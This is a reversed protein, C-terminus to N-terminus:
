KPLADLDVTCTMIQQDHDKIWAQVAPLSVNKFPNYGDSYQPAIGASRLWSYFYSNFNAIDPPFHFGYRKVCAATGALSSAVESAVPGEVHNAPNLSPWIVLQNPKATGLLARDYIRRAREPAFGYATVVESGGEVFAALQRRHGEHVCYEVGAKTTCTRPADAQYVSVAPQRLSPGLAFLMVVPVAVLAALPPKRSTSRLLALSIQAAALTVIALFILRYILLPRSAQEGLTLVRTPVPSLASTGTTGVITLGLLLVFSLSGMLATRSWVGTLYGLVTATALGVLGTLSVLVDPGGYQAKGATLVLLPVFALVYGILHSSLLLGLHRNLISSVPRASSRQAFIRSAPTVRGAYYTAAAAAIPGTIALQWMFESSTRTWEQYPWSYMGSTASLVVGFILAGPVLLPIPGLPWLRRMHAESM